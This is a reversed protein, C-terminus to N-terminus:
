ERLMIAVYLDDGTSAITLDSTAATPPIDVIGNVGSSVIRVDKLSSVPDVYHVQLPNNWADILSPGGDTSTPTQLYPGNWGIRTNPDFHITSDNTVPNRFLWRIQFREEETAVTAIGDLQIHKTDQWYRLMAQQVEVLTSRTATQTSYAIQDSCLPIVIGTLAALIFLVAILEVLTLALRAPKM